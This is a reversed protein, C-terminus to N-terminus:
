WSSGGGGGSFGGGGGFGGFGGGGGGGFGGGGWSGGGLGGGGFGGPIFIPLCGGCGRRRRGGRSGMGNLLMLVIIFALFILQPPFGGRRSYREDVAPLEVVPAVLSTDLTFHFEGAFREATRLIVLELGTAYDRQAFAPTAERCITGADADTIFGEAGYGPAIFCHGRGDGSTEKPVLLVVAGANRTPDGPKGPRGVKWDRGIELAVESAPRDGITSLTVIAIEGPSKARVDEAIREIRKATADDLVHAFDNILGTPAPVKPGQQLFLVLSLPAAILSKRM